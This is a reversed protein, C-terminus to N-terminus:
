AVLAPVGCRMKDVRVDASGLKVGLLGTVQNIVGDLLPATSLLLGGVSNVLPGLSLTIGLLTVSIQVNKALSSAAGTTLDNTTVTRTVRNAIDSKSFFVSQSQLGGLAIDAYANVKTGLINVLAAPQKTIPVSLNPLDSAPVDAISISGVSPTVALTVGDSSTGNCQIDSLRAEAAALEVYVPIRISAVGAIIGTGVQTDLYIRMASTRIVVDKAQTVTLWPSSAVSGGVITLQVSTLGPVSVNLGSQYSGGKAQILLSRLMSLADVKIPTDSSTNSTNQGMPGLDILDSVRVKSTGLKAAVGQLVSMASGPASDALAMVITQLPVNAGFVDAYTAGQMNLRVRLADAFGLLDINTSALGQTSILSLNLNTGALSSLLDNALGGSLGVLETGISFGAMNMRAATAHASITLSSKGLLLKGFFLPVQRQLTLQAASPASASATFRSAIAVSKDRAYSGPTLQSITVDAVGTQNIISQASATGQGAIDGQAAALVASDAIGQLQRKALFLSGIDVAAAAAGALAMFSFAFLIAAVGRHDQGFSQWYRKLSAIRM